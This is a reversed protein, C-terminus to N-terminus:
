VDASVVPEGDVSEIPEGSLSIAADDDAAKGHEALGSEVGFALIWAILAVAGLAVTVLLINGIGTM